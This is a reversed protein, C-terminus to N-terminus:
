REPTETPVTFSEKVMAGQVSDRRKADM